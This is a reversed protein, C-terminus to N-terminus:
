AGVESRELNFFRAVDTLLEAHDVQAQLVPTYPINQSARTRRRSLLPKYHRDIVDPWLYNREFRDRGARGM